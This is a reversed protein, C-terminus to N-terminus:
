MMYEHNGYPALTFEKWNNLQQNLTMELGYVHGTQWWTAICM